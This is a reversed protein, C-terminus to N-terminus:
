GSSNQWIAIFDQVFGGDDSALLVGALKSITLEGLHNILHTIQQNMILMVDDWAVEEPLQPEQVSRTSELYQLVPEIEQFVLKSPLDHRVVAFFHRALRRTGNELAFLASPPIPPQIQTTGSRALLLIARRMLVQLEAMNNASNTAALLVGGPKLVRRFEEITADIDQVHFLMHNAMVVDFIRDQFPLWQADAVGIKGSAPHKRLMGASIDVGYYDVDPWNRSLPECYSGAGCGVDLVREDGRWRMAEIVCEAFDMKPVTYTNHIFQRIRLNKDTDYQQQIIEPDNPAVM